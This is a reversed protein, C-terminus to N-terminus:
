TESKGVLGISITCFTAGPAGVGAGAGLLDIQHARITTIGHRKVSEFLWELVRLTGAEPAIALKV